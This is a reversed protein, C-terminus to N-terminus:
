PDLQVAGQRLVTLMGDKSLLAVTSPQNGATDGGDVYFDVADGFYNQAQTINQSPPEGPMNASSTLLPGTQALLARITEDAPIRVALSAKGQDLYALHEGVPLVVSLPAPWFAAVHQLYHLSVGLQELQKVSAAIVTGPKGERHKARYLKAVADHNVACAVVGYITDTALVGVKGHQLLSVIEAQNSAAIDRM